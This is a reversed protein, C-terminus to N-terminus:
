RNMADLADILIESPKRVVWENQSWLRGSMSVYSGYFDSVVILPRVRPPVLRCPASQIIKSAIAFCECIDAAARKNDMYCGGWGLFLFLRLHADVLYYQIAYSNFGYGAHSLLAYRGTFETSGLIFSHLNYPSTRIKRSAFVWPDIEEMQAALDEPIYPFGLGAGLFKQQAQEIGSM